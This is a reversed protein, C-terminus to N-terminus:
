ILILNIVENINEVEYFKINEIISKDTLNNYFELYDKNNEKPYIFKTAGSRIGGLIKLDLGGIPMIKGQLCIEGTIAFDKSIKKGILLSYLVCTITM